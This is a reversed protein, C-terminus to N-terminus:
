LSPASLQPAGEQPFGELSRQSPSSPLCFLAEWVQASSLKSFTSVSCFMVQKSNIQDKVESRGPGLDKKSCMNDKQKTSVPFGM